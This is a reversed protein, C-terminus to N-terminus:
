GRASSHCGAGLEDFDLGNECWIKTCCFIGTRLRPLAEILERFSFKFAVNSGDLTLSELRSCSVGFQTLFKSTDGCFSAELFQLAYYPGSYSLSHPFYSPDLDLPAELLYTVGLAFQERMEVGLFGNAAPLTNCPVVPDGVSSAKEASFWDIKRSCGRFACAFTGRTQTLRHRAPEVTPGEPIDSPLSWGPFRSDRAAAERRVLTTSHDFESGARKNEIHLVLEMASLLECDFRQTNLIVRALDRSLMIAAAQLWVTKVDDESQWENRADVIRDFIRKGHEYDIMCERFARNVLTLVFVHKPTRCSFLLIKSVAWLKELVHLNPPSSAAAAAAAATM